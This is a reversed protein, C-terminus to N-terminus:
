DLLAIGFVLERVIHCKGDNIKNLYFVARM